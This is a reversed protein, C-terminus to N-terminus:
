LLTVHWSAVPLYIRNSLDNLHWKVFKGAFKVTKGGSSKPIDSVAVHESSYAKSFFPTGGVAMGNYEVLITHPGVEKPVFEATFGNKVNGTVKVPIDDSPGLLPFLLNTLKNLPLNTNM